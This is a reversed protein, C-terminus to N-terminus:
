QVFMMQLVLLAYSSMADLLYLQLWQRPQATPPM